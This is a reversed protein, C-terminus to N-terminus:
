IEANMSTTVVEQLARIEDRVEQNADEFSIREVYTDRSVAFGKEM